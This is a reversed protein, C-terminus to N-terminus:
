IRCPFKKEPDAAPDPLAQLLDGMRVEVVSPAQGTCWNHWMLRLARELGAAVVAPYGLVSKHYRERMSARLQALVPLHQSLFVALQIYTAEDDAIFSHLGLHSVPHAVARSPNTAGVTALTPVGMWLAHFVTTAGTYPFPALCIDVEHHQALYDRMNTRQHVTIRERAIGEEALWELPRQESNNWMGGLVLRADPVARLLKAWQAIVIKSLKNPRHFSGFTLYGNALAPLPNIDPAVAEPLFVAGSPLYALKESFQDDYRGRPLHFPDTIYYDMSKLGTTGGYGIWSAQVPAPKRAFLTLRNRSTHGSLDILVDIGDKRIQAEAAEDDLATINRWHAFHGRLRDTIVDEFDHNYYAYLELQDSHQLVATLPELYSSVAHRYLDGSVFGVRLVRNPDRGNEHPKRKDALPAEWRESFTYHARTLEEPDLCYHSLAFLASTHADPSHPGVALMRRAVELSSDWGTAELHSMLLQHLLIAHDPFVALAKELASRAEELRGLKHLCFGVDLLARANDPELEQVRRYTTLAGAYDGAERLAEALWALADTDNPVMDVAEHFCAAAEDFKRAKLLCEGLARRLHVLSPGHRVALRYSDAAQEFQELHYLAEGLFEHLDTLGPDLALARRHSAVAQPLKGAKQLSLALKAHARADRPRARVERRHKDIEIAPVAASGLNNM